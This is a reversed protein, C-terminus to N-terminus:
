GRHVRGCTQSMGLVVNDFFMNALSSSGLGVVRLTAPSGALVFALDASEQQGVHDGMHWVVSGQDAFVAVHSELSLRTETGV